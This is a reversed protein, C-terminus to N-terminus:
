PEVAMIRSQPERERNLLKHIMNRLLREPVLGFPSLCFFPVLIKQPCIVHARCKSLVKCIDM